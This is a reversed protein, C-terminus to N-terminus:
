WQALFSNFRDRDLQYDSFHPYDRHIRVYPGTLITVDVGITEILGTLVPLGVTYPHNLICVKAGPLSFFTLFMASGEPGIVRRGGRILRVQDAFDLEEPYITIYGHAEAILIIEDQNVLRRHSHVTQRRALFIHENAGYKGAQTEIRRNLERIIPTFRLPPHAIYDWRYRENMKEHLPMYMPAPACWLREVRAITRSPLVIIESGGPLLAELAQRHQRPMGDDILVPMLPLRGSQIARIYRPLYEWMWHGFAPTHTGVLSFAETIEIQPDEDGVTIVWATKSSVQFVGPDLELQDDICGWEAGECDHLVLAELEVLSSRSRIMAHDFCALYITRSTGELPRQNGEGVVRPPLVTFRQGGEDLERYDRAIAVATEHLSGVAKEQLHQNRSLQLLERYKEFAEDRPFMSQISQKIRLMEYIGGKIAANIIYSPIDTEPTM